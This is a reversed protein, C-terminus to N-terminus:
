CYTNQIEHSLERHTYPTPEFLTIRTEASLPETQRIPLRVTFITGVGLESTAVITGGHREVIGFCISLGLGTGEGVAKTTYFPDFIRGLDQKAIGPGSDAITVTVFEDAASTTARVHGPKAGLAQAANVLLNMLVQNIQSGFADIAPLDSLDHTLEIDGSGFYQSLLRTTAILGQNLDFKKFEAEDLRSFTKLNQVIDKIRAAGDRCDDIISELDDISSLYPVGAKMAAVQETIEPPLDAAEYFKLIEVLAKTTQHLIDLNGHVFAVPNNLEHAIGASLQGLGVMKANQAITAQLQQLQAKGTELEINRAELAKKYREATQRHSRHDLAREVALELVPLDCPKILYDFAGQRLADLAREPKDVGSVMIVTTQPYTTVIKRLLETGSLGPMMVDVIAIDFEFRRLCESAEVYNGAEMCHYKPSLTNLFVSRILRSDDVILVRGM